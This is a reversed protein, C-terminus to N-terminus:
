SSGDPDSRGALHKFRWAHRYWRYSLYAANFFALTTIIAWYLSSVGFVSTKFPMTQYSISIKSKNMIFLGSAAISILATFVLSLRAWLTDDFLRHEPADFGIWGAAAGPFLLLFAPADTGPDTTRSMVFGVLWVLSLCALSAIAASFDASPPVEFFDLQLKPRREGKIPAPFFRGYFHAYSQGLRRRFRYHLPTPAGKAKLASDTKGMYAESAIFKQRALYFGEPAQVRVHYSQCSWANDLSVTVSVPRTGFLVRLWGRLLAICRNTRRFKQRLQRYYNEDDSSLELEPILTRKYQIIFRGSSRVPISAVIAYHLSLTRVLEAALQLYIRNAENPIPLKELVEAVDRAEDSIPSEAVNAQARKIIECLARHEVAVPAEQASVYPGSPFHAGHGPERIGYALLMFLRLIGAVLQLYERYSLVSVLQEDAMSVDLNDNLAGKPLVLVPFFIDTSGSGNTGSARDELSILRPPIQVEIEVDQELTRQGPIYQESVRQRLESPEMIALAFIRAQKATPRTKAAMQQLKYAERGLVQHIEAITRGPRTKIQDLYFSRLHWIIMGILSLALVGQLVWRPWVASAHHFSVPDVLFAIMFICFVARGGLKVMFGGLCSRAAELRDIGGRLV